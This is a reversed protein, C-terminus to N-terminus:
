FRDPDGALIAGNFLLPSAFVSLVDNLLYDEQTAWPPQPALSQFPDRFYIPDHWVVTPPQVYVMTSWDRHEIMHYDTPRTAMENLLVATQQPDDLVSPHDETAELLANYPRSQQAKATTASLCCSGVVVALALRAIERTKMTVLSLESKRPKM